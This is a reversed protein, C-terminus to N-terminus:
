ANALVPSRDAFNMRCTLDSFAVPEKKVESGVTEKGAQTSMGLGVLVKPQWRSPLRRGSQRCTLKRVSLLLLSACRMKLRFAFFLFCAAERGKLARLAGVARHANRPEVTPGHAPHRIQPRFAAAQGILEVVQPKTM